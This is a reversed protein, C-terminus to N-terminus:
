RIKTFFIYTITKVFNKFFNKKKGKKKRKKGRGGEGWVELAFFFMPFICFFTHQELIKERKEKNKTFFIYFTYNKM